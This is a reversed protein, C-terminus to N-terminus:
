RGKIDVRPDFLMWNLLLEIGSTTRWDQVCSVVGTNLDTAVALISGPNM